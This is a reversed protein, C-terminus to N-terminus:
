IEERQLVALVGQLPLRSVVFEIWKHKDSFTQKEKAKSVYKCQISFEVNTM